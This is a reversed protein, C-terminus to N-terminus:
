AVDDRHVKSVNEDIWTCLNLISVLYEDKINEAVFKTVNKQKELDEPLSPLVVYKCDRKIDSM